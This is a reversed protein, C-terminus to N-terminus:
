CLFMMVPLLILLKNVIVDDCPVEMYLRFERTLVVSVFSVATSYVVGTAPGKVVIIDDNFKSGYIAFVKKFTYLIFQWAIVQKPWAINPPNPM